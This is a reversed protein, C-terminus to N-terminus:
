RTSGVLVPVRRVSLTPTDFSSFLAKGGRLYRVGRSTIEAVVCDGLRDGARVVRGDVIAIQHGPRGLVGEVHMRGIVAPATETLRADAPRTPDRLQDAAHANTLATALAAGLALTALSIVPIMSRANM